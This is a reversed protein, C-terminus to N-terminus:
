QHDHPAGSPQQGVDQTQDLMAVLRVDRGIQLPGVEPQSNHQQRRNAPQRGPRQGCPRRAIRQDVAIGRRLQKRLQHAARRDGARFPAAALRAWPAGRRRKTQQTPPGTSPYLRRAPAFDAQVQHYSQLGWVVQFRQAGDGVQECLDLARTYTERIEPASWGKLSTLAAGLVILLALERSRHEARDPVTKLLDLAKNLYQAAEQTAYVREAVEAARQYFPIAQAALGGRAYHEAIQGSIPDLPNPHLRELIEGARRHLLQRRGYSLSHYVVAQILEHHFRYGPGHEEFFRRAVLEDLGEVTELEHRGATQRIEEFAFTPGLIAGAELVQRAMPQLRELRQEITARVNSSIPLATAADFATPSAGTELLTQVSELLFFPNGGTIQQLRATLLALDPHDQDFHALVQRVEPAGLPELQLEALVRLRSLHARLASLSGAEESRYAAVILLRSCPLYRALYSLWDLTTADSWHLDDLCLLM